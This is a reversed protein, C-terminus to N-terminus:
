EAFYKRLLMQLEVKNIPKSIYDNCGADISKPYDGALGFATQAIIVVETNFQRIQRTAEYGNMGPMRIDMLILDIDPHNRCLEVAEPGTRAKLVEKSILKIHSDMLLESVEDDEALLIKLKRTQASTSNQKFERDFSKVSPSFNSYPLTFYFVSGKGEESVVWIRGGLMEVYAKTIALGLGAGQYAMKDAIDAQIFREFIAEQRDAPIGIGTDKVYFELVFSQNEKKLNYGFAISGEKTFKIANKVLNTLIAYLKERDTKIIAEQDRLSNNLSFSIGKAEVEPKFFTYIYETQENVRAEKIDPEMLGAEIKSIDIIDNIINLMRKGSKGIMDICKQQEAGTLDPENLLEAFGLIGNMPTRIEHSMNALFASKLRDSEEAREKASTLERVMNIRESIKWVSDMLLTLQRIDSNDYDTEKNAVGCVAVITNDIVVPITLFKDLQVHGEPTGRKLENELQYENIIIPRRQRVAEGWCGTKDLDYVTEPNLVRCERMVDKSWTNLIFQKTDQNYFYIYGIKSKTLLIAEELAFDLLEQISNSSYQSIKLLSELRANNIEIEANNSILNENIEQLKMEAQKRKTVELFAAVFHDPKYQYAVCDYYRQNFELYSEFRITEGFHAVKGFVGIWDFPDNEIGPFAETALMGIPDVGTLEQYSKNADLFLYDKPKGADDYIMRHYAVGIPGKEFLARFKLESEKLAQEAQKRDSIDTHTGVIRIAQGHDNFFAEARSLIDVWHGDKHKMKFELVFRDIQGAILKKQLEWSKQADVPDTTKEWVSFDNPLEHDEYGLMKKWGVSYYIENTELNWDFLGDNSAKMALQFREESEVAREKAVILEAEASKRETIDRVVGETGIFNGQNDYVLKVNMSVWFSTGDKRLGLGTWDFVKGNKRLTELLKDREGADAYLKSAPLGILENETYGYMMLGRSNAYTFNGQQDAQFFADQLNELISKLKQESDEAREKAILLDEFLQKQETVDTFNLIIGNIARDGLLNTFTTEIWRYEGNCHRFRYDITPKISPDKLITEITQLVKLLDDPHTYEDGSHGIVDQEDYGFLRAANPSVYKFKGNDQIIM